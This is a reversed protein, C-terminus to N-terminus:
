GSVLMHVPLVHPCPMSYSTCVPMTSQITRVSNYSNAFLLTAKAM